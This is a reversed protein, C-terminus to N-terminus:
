KHKWILGLMGRNQDKKCVDCISAHRTVAVDLNLLADTVTKGKGILLQGCLMTQTETYEKKNGMSAIIENREIRPTM